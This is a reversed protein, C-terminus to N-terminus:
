PARPCIGTECSFRRFPCSQPSAGLIPLLASPAPIPVWGCHPSPNGEKGTVAPSLSSPFATPRGSSKGGPPKLPGGRSGTQTKEPVKWSCPQQKRPDEHESLMEAQPCVYRCPNWSSSVVVDKLTVRPEPPLAPQGKRGHRLRLLVTRPASEGLSSSQPSPHNM